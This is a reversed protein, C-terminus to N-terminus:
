FYIAIDSFKKSDLRQLSAKVSRKTWDIELEGFNSESIVDSALEASKPAPALAKRNVGGATLDWLDLKSDKLHHFFGSGYNGSLVIMNQLHKQSILSLLRERAGPFLSWSEYGSEKMILPTPSVLIRLQAPKELQKRLWAWQDEGLIDLNEKSTAYPGMPFVQKKNLKLSDRFSHVDLLLIQVFHASDGVEVSHYIGKQSGVLKDNESYFKQWDKQYLDKDPNEKGNHLPSLIGYDEEDWTGIVPVKARYLVFEPILNQLRYWQPPTIRHDESAKFHNGLHIYLDPKAEQMKKWLDQPTRPDACCSWQIKTIVKDSKIKQPNLEQQAWASTAALFAFCTLFRM